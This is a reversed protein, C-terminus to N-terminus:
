CVSSSPRRRPGASGGCRAGPSSTSRTTARPRSGDRRVCADARLQLVVASGDVHDRRHRPGHPLRGVVRRSHLDGDVVGVDPSRGHPVYWVRSAADPVTACCHRVAQCMKVRVSLVPDTCNRTPRDTTTSIAVQAAATSARPTNRGRGEPGGAAHDESSTARTAHQANSAAYAAQSVTTAIADDITAAPCPARRHADDTCPCGRNHPAHQACREGARQRDRRGGRRRDRQVEPGVAAQRAAGCRRRGTRRRSRRGARNGPGRDFRRRTSGGRTSGGRSTSGACGRRCRTTEPSLEPRDRARLERSTVSATGSSRSSAGYQDARRRPWGRSAASPRGSGSRDPRSRDRQRLGYVGAPTRSTAHCPFPSQQVALDGDDGSRSSPDAAAVGPQEGGLPRLDDDVVEAGGGFASAGVRRGGALDDVLDDALATRRDGFPSLTASQSPAPATTCCASSSYPRRSMTTLLAPMRRSAILKLMVSSRIPSPSRLHVELPVHRHAMVRGLVPARGALRAGVHGPADDVGRALRAEVALGTLDVVRGRLGADDRM